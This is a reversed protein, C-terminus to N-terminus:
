VWIDASLALMAALALPYGYNWKLEPMHEFNMGYNTGVIMLVTLVAGWVALKKTTEGEALTVLALNTQTAANPLDRLTDITLNIREAHDLVDRFYPRLADTTIEHRLGVLAECVELLPSVVRRMQMTERKLQYLEEITLRNDIRKDFLREEIAELREELAEVEPFLRDVIRDLLGHLAAGPGMALFEPERELEARVERFGGETRHRITLLFHAGVYFNFRAPQSNARPM